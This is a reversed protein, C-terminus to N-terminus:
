VGCWEKSHKEGTGRRTRWDGVSPFGGVASSEGCAPLPQPHPEKHKQTIQRVDDSNNTM